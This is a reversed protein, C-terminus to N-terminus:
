NRPPYTGNMAICYTLQVEPTGGSSSPAAGRLDPLAFTTQGDGGYRHGLLSFLAQNENIGLMRGDALAWFRPCFTTAVLMIEGIYPEIGANAKTPTLPAILAAAISAALANQRLLCSTM